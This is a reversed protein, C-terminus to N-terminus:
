SKEKNGGHLACFDRGLAFIGFNPAARVASFWCFRFIVMKMLAFRSKQFENKLCVVDNGSCDSALYVDISRKGKPLILRDEGLMTEKVIPGM